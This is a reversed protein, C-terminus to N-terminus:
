NSLNKIYRSSIDIGANAFFDLAKKQELAYGYCVTKGPITKQKDKTSEFRLYISSFPYKKRCYTMPATKPDYNIEKPCILIGPGNVDSDSFLFSRDECLKINLMSWPYRKQLKWLSITCGDFDFKVTRSFYVFDRVSFFCLVIDLLLFLCGLLVNFHTIFLLILECIIIVPWIAIISVIDDTCSKLEM